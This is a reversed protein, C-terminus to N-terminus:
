LGVRVRQFARLGRDAARRCRFPLPVRLAAPIRASRRRVRAQLAARRLVRCRAYGAGPFAGVHNERAFIFPKAITAIIVRKFEPPEGIVRRSKELFNAAARATATRATGMAM